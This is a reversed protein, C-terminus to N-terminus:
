TREIGRQHYIPDEGNECMGIWHVCGAEAAGRAYQVMPYDAEPYFTGMHSLAATMIPSSFEEGYLKFTTDPVASGVLRMELLIQDFYERTHEM